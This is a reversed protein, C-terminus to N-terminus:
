HFDHSIPVNLELPLSQFRKAKVSVVNDQHQLKGEILLFPNSIVLRHQDFLQPTVIVNALGTEDELNLFVFGKATGSRFLM